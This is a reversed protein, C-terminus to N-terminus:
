KNGEPIQEMVTNILLLRLENELIDLKEDTNSGVAKLESNLSTLKNMISKKNKSNTENIDNILQAGEEKSSIVIGRLKDFLDIIENSASMNKTVTDHTKKIENNNACSLKEIKNINSNVTQLQMTMNDSLTDQIAKTSENCDSCIKEESAIIQKLVSDIDSLARDSSQQLLDLKRNVNEIQENQSNVVDLLQEIKTEIDALKKKESLFM